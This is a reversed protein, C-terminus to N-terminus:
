VHPFIAGRSHISCISSASDHSVLSHDRYMYIYIYTYIYIYIHIYTYMYMYTYIYIYICIYVWIYICTYIYMCIYVYQTVKIRVYWLSADGIKSSDNWVHLRSSEGTHIRWTVCNFSENSIRTVYISSGHWVRPNM